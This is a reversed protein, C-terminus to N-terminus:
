VRKRLGAPLGLWVYGLILKFCFIFFLPPTIQAGHGTYPIGGIIRMIICVKWCKMSNINTKDFKRVIEFKGLNNMNYHPVKKSLSGVIDDICSLGYTWKLCLTLFSDSSDIVFPPVSWTM